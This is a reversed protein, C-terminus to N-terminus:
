RMAALPQERIPDDAGGKKEWESYTFERGM